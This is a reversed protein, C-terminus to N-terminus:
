RIVQLATAASDHRSNTSESRGGGRSGEVEVHSKVEADDEGEAAGDHRLEAEQVLV